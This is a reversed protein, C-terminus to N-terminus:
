GSTKKNNQKGEVNKGAKKVEEIYGADMLDRLVAKDSYETIEGEHM